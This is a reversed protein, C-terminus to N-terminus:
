AAGDATLKEICHGILTLALHVVLDDITLATAICSKTTLETAQISITQWCTTRRWKHSWYHIIWTVILVICCSNLFPYVITRHCISESFRFKNFM